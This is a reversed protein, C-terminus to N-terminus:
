AREAIHRAMARAEDTGLGRGETVLRQVEDEPVRHDRALSVPDLGIVLEEPAKGGLDEAIAEAV